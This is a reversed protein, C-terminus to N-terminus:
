YAACRFGISPNRDYPQFATRMTIRVVSPNSNFAHGRVVKFTGLPPGKPNKIIGSFYADVNYWDNTWEAVNGIMDKVGFPSIDFPFSGVPATFPFGDYYDKFIM